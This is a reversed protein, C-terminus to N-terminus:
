IGTGIERKVQMEEDFQRKDERSKIVEGALKTKSQDFSMQRKSDSEIMRAELERDFKAMDSAKDSMNKELELGERRIENQTRQDELFRENEFNILALEQAGEQRIMELQVQPDIEEQPQEEEPVDQIFFRGTDKFGVAGFIEKSVEEENLRKTMGPAFASISQLATALRNIRQAPSTAGFGVNIEVTMNGQIMLDTLQDIGYKEWVEMKQGLMAFIAEDTEHRQELQILQKIVPEVWTETFIRLQYEPMIDGEGALLEMGGVTEGLNRNSNVSGSSFNGAVDDFDADIRDQEQYSSSTVDPPAEVRIDNDVNNMLTVGGPVNRQLSRLDINQGRKVFYRRNLVLSVNDQRQNNLENATQQLGSTIGAVSEPYNRHAEITSGGMVYPREGPKLHPYAEELPIPESLMFYVGVTYYIWDRGEYEMINRHIWITDYEQNLYSTEEISDIERRERQRRVSDDSYEDSRGQQLSGVDVTHWPINSKGINRTMKIVAAITMPIRDIIFPSAGLPDTWDVAPAFRINEVPRLEVCPTDKIITYKDEMAPEGYEDLVAQGEMYLPVKQVQEEFKWYQHSICVGSVLTDQYAGQLTKFWPITNAFRYQLLEKNVEASVRQVINSPDEARVDVIDRAAFFATAAAAENKRIVTRTKPRFGKARAAFQETYYKSGPAHRGRFHAVNREMDRRVAVDFYTESTEFADRSMSMWHGETRLATASQDGEGASDAEVNGMPLTSRENNYPSATNLAM